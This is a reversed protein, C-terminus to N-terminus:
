LKFNCACLFFWINKNYNKLFLCLNNKLVTKQQIFCFFLFVCKIIFFLFVIKQEEIYFFLTDQFLM